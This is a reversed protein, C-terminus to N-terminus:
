ERLWDLVKKLEPGLMRLWTPDGPNIGMERLANEMEMKRENQSLNRTSQRVNEIRAKVEEIREKNLEIRGTTESLGAIQKSLNIRAADVSVDRLESALKLDFDSKANKTVLGAAQLGKLAAEQRIVQNQAVLNDTQAERNRVDLATMAASRVDIQPAIPHWSNVRGGGLAARPQPTADLGAGGTMQGYILNPNLGASKFRQMQSIPSNYENMMNWIRENNAQDRAWISENYENQEKWKGYNDAEQRRYMEENWERTKKNTRGQAVMNGTQGVLNATAAIAAAQNSDM